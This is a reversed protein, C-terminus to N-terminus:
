FNLADIISVEPINKYFDEREKNVIAQKEVENLTEGRELKQQAEALIQSPSMMMRRHNEAIRQEEAKKVQYERYYWGCFGVIIFLAIVVSSKFVLAIKM